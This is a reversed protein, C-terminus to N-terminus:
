ALSSNLLLYLIVGNFIQGLTSFAIFLITITKGITLRAFVRDGPDTIQLDQPNYQCLLKRFSNNVLKYLKYQTAMLWAAIVGLFAAMIPFVFVAYSLKMILDPLIYPILSIVLAASGWRYITMYFCENRYKRWEWLYKIAVEASIRDPNINHPEEPHNM